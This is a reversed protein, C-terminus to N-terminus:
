GALRAALEAAVREIVPPWLGEPGQRFLRMAPYWPTDERGQIWRWDNLWPLLLWTPV